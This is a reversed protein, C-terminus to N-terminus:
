YKLISGADVAMQMSELSETLTTSRQPTKTVVEKWTQLDRYVGANYFANDGNVLLFDLMKRVIRRQGELDAICSAHNATVKQLIQIAGAQYEKKEDLSWDQCPVVREIQGLEWVCDFLQGAAIRIQLKIETYIKFMDEKVRKSTSMRSVM